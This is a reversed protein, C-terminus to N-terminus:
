RELLRRLFVRTRENTPAKLVQTPPGQEAVIGNDMFVIRDAVEAAFGMEHTVVLMTMGQTALERVVALVEGVLEPDLASTVEDFLMIRPKMALARAIAVRQQQGGSLVRPLADMHDPLGVRVLLERALDTAEERSFGRVLMPALMVNKIVSMHPFLNFQQFVMGVERRILSTASPVKRRRGDHAEQVVAGEILIQGSDITELAAVLRLLTSKGGGSPGIVVLVEGTQVSLDIDNLVVRRGYAKSVGRLEVAVESPPNSATDDADPRPEAPKVSDGRPTAPMNREGLARPALSASPALPSRPM